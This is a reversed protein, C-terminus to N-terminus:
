AKRIQIEVGQETMEGITISYGVPTGDNFTDSTQFFKMWESAGIKAGTKFLAKDNASSVTKFWNGFNGTYGRADILHLLNYGDVSRSGTNSPGIQTFTFDNYDLTDSWDKSVLEETELNYVYKQLRSDVHWIRVGPVSFTKNGNPNRSTKYGNVDKANLGDPTYYEIAVYEDYAHGNWGDKIIIFEGTQNSPKLTIDAHGTVHYPEAWNLRFKSYINHDAINYDMMDAQGAPSKQRDYDYYDPLSLVHGTEHIFTHADPKEVSYGDGEIAFQYSAWAYTNPTPKDVNAYRNWYFKYAWFPDNSGGGIDHIENMYVMWLADVHGDGDQDFEKLKEATLTNYILEILHHTTDWYFGEGFQQDSMDSPLEAFEATTMDVNFYPLVEGTLTLKEFSSKHYYSYVSEWGTEESEGFFIKNLMTHHEPTARYTRDKFVVPVVLLKQTGVSELATMGIAHDLERNGYVGNSVKSFNELGEYGPGTKSTGEESTVEESTSTVPPQTTSSEEVSPDSTVPNPKCGTLLLAFLPLLLLNRKAKKM